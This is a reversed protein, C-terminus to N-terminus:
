IFNILEKFKLLEREEDFNKLFLNKSNNTFIKFKEKDEYLNIIKKELDEIDKNKYNLGISNDSIIKSLHGDICNLIPLSFSLYESVKNPIGMKFDFSSAYPVIGLSSKSLIEQIKRENIWGTFIINKSNKALSKFYDYLEGRGCIYFEINKNYKEIKQAAKIVTELEVRHSLNGVHSILFKDNNKKMNLNNKYSFYMYRDNKMKVQSRSSYNQAWSLMYPSISMLIDCHKFSLKTILESFLFIIKYLYYFKKNIFSYFIEPWADRVDVISKIKYIKCFIVVVFANEITPFSCFIIDPVNKKAIKILYFFLKISFIFNSFFRILSINKKYPITKLIHLEYKNLNHITDKNFRNIKKSHNFDSTIWKVNNDKSLFETQKGCRHLRENIGDVPLPEGVGIIWINKM